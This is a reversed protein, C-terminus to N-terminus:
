NLGKVMALMKRLREHNSYGSRLCRERGALGIRLCEDPRQVYHRVLDLLEEDTGFFVAERKDEFLAQHEDTREALMFRGCAPIEVSRTTQEDRNIKRLFHLNIDFSCIGRAYDDGMLTRGESRLMSRKVIGQGAWNSGYIRPCFGSEALRAMSRAREMEYSGVFGIPGGLLLMEDRSLEIPRHTHPDFANDIFRVDKCGLDKLERVNFSKTTFFVDYLHLHELFQRSQNHRAVMDDPSYGVITMSSCAQRAEDLTSEAISLGKDIWLVDWPGQRLANLIARNAGARDRNVPRIPCGLRYARAIVRDAVSTPAFTAPKHTDVGHVQHGLDSMANLRQRTTSGPALPGVFIIRLM